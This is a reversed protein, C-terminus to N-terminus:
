LNVKVGIVLGVNGFPYNQKIDQDPDSDPITKNYDVEKLYDWRKEKETMSALKDVGNETYETYKGHSPAYSIGDVQIEAFLSILKSLVFDTGVAAQAGFAIGGYLKSKSDITISTTAKQPYSNVNHNSMVLSNLVGLKLGLRAYPLIKDLPLSIVFAPVISLMQGNYKTEYTYYDSTSKSKMKFGYFYDIGLEFAFHKNLKYGAALVFPLGTGIGQKKVTVIDNNGSHNYDGTYYAATSVAIGLGGRIYIKQAQVNVAILLVGIFLIRITKM